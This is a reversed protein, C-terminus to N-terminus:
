TESATHATCLYRLAASAFSSKGFGLSAIAQFKCRAGIVLPDINCAALFQLAQVHLVLHMLDDNLHTLFFVFHPMVHVHKKCPQMDITDVTDINFGSVRCSLISSREDMSSSLLLLDEVSSEDIPSLKYWNVPFPSLTLSSSIYHSINFINKINIKIVVTTFNSSM